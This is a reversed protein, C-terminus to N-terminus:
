LRKEVGTESDTPIIHPNIHAPWPYKKHQRADLTTQTQQILAERIARLPVSHEEKLLIQSCQKLTSAPAM